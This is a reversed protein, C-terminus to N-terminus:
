GMKERAKGVVRAVADLGAGDLENIVDVLTLGLARTDELASLRRDAISVADGTREAAMGARALRMAVDPECFFM